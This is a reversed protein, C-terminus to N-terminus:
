GVEVGAFFGGAVWASFWAMVQDAGAQGEVPALAEGLPVGACLRQLLGRTLPTLDMRWVRYGQRYVATATPRRRPIPSIAGERFRQLWRNVPFHFDLVQLAPSPQFRAAAWAEPGLGALRARDLQAPPAAHVAEVLAWELTALETLFARHRLRGPGRLHDLLVRGYRNLNPGRSPTTTIVRDALRPFAEEGMAARVGPYDDALCAQLRARYAHHYIRMRDVLDLTPGHTVVAPAAVGHRRGAARLGAEVSGPRTIVELFWAQTTALDLGASPVVRRRRRGEPIPAVPSASAREVGLVEESGGADAHPLASM